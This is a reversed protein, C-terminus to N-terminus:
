RSKMLLDIIKNLSNEVGVMREGISKIESSQERFLGKAYSRTEEVKLDYINRLHVVNEARKNEIDKFGSDMDKRQQRLEFNVWFVFTVFQAAFISVLIVIGIVDLTEFFENM